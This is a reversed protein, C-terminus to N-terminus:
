VWADIVRIENKTNDEDVKMKIAPESVSNFVVQYDIDIRNDYFFDVGNKGLDINDTKFGNFSSKVKSDFEEKKCQIQKLNEIVDGITLPM